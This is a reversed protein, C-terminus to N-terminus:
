SREMDLVAVQEIMDGTLIRNSRGQKDAAFIASGNSYIVSGDACLDFALVGKAVVEPQGASSKRMLQWSKPVLDVGEGANDEKQARILNGHIMMQKMDMERGLAGGSTSLKKGGYLMSFFNLYQFIAYALRWPFLFVDKLFRGYSIERGSTRPKQIYYLTGDQTVQPALLDYRSDELLCEMSGNELDLMQIAYASYGAIHGERNRGVGASQYVIRKREGPVWRPSTDFSDGETAEMLGSDDSLMIGINATGIKHVVSCALDGNLNSTIYQLRRNNNSWLRREEAGFGDVALLGCSHDTELTYFFQGDTKGRCLSTIAIRIASADQPAAKGWLMPGSLFSDSGGGSKWSHRQQSKVAKDRISQGYQSEVIRPPQDGLKLHLKGQALYAINLSM